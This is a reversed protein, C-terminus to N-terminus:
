VGALVREAHEAFAEGGMRRVDRYFSAWVHRHFGSIRAPVEDALYASYFEESTLGYTRELWALPRSLSAASYSNREM